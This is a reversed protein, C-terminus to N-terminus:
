SAICMCKSWSTTPKQMFRTKRTVLGELFKSYIKVSANIYVRKIIRKSQAVGERPSFNAADRYRFIERGRFGNFVFLSESCANKTFFFFCALSKGRYRRAPHVFSSSVCDPFFLKRNERSRFCLPSTGQLRKVLVPTFKGWGNKPLVFRSILCLLFIDAHVYM